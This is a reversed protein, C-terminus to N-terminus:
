ELGLKEALVKARRDEESEQEPFSMPEYNVEYGFAALSDVLLTLASGGFGSLEVLSQCLLPTKVVDGVTQVDPWKYKICHLITPVSLDFSVCLDYKGGLVRKLFAVSFFSEIPTEELEKRRKSTLKYLPKRVCRRRNVEHRLAMRKGYNM